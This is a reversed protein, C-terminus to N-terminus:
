YITPADGAEPILQLEVKWDRGAGIVKVAFAKLALRKEEFNFSVLNAAVRLCYAKIAKLGWRVEQQNLLKAEMQQISTRLQAKQRDTVTTAKEILEWLADTPNVMYRRMAEQQGAEIRALERRARELEATLTKDPGQTARREVEAAIHEPNSIADTIISWV